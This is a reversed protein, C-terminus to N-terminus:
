QDKVLESADNYTKNPASSNEPSSSRVNQSGKSAGVGSNRPVLGESGLNRNSESDDDDASEDGLGRLLKKVGKKGFVSDLKKGRPKYKRSPDYVYGPNKSAGSRISNLAAPTL